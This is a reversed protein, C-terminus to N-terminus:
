VIRHIVTDDSVSERPKTKLSKKEKRRKIKSTTCKSVQTYMTQAVEGVGAEPFGARSGDEVIKNFLFCLLYYSFCLTKALKLYEDGCSILSM